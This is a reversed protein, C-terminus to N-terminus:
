GGGTLRNVIPTIGTTIVPMITRPLLGFFVLGTVLPAICTMELTTVDKVRAWSERPPGFFIRQVALLLAGTTILMSVMVVVTAVRHSPFSGTFVLVEATFGVLLPAGM